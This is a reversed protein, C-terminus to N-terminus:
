EVMIRFYYSADNQQEKVSVELVYEGPPLEAPVTRQVGSGHAELTRDPRFTGTKQLKKLSYAGVEEM